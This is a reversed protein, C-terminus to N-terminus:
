FVKDLKEDFDDELDEEINYGLNDDKAMNPVKIIAIQSSHRPLGITVVRGVIIPKAVVSTTTIHEKLRYLFIV